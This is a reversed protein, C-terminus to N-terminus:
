SVDSNCLVLFKICNNQKKRCPLATLAVITDPAIQYMLGCEYANFIDKRAYVSLFSQFSPLHSSIVDDDADM